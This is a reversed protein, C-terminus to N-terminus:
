RCIALQEGEWEASNVVKVGRGIGEAAGLKLGNCLPPPSSMMTASVLVVLGAIVGLVITLPMEELMDMSMTAPPAHTRRPLGVM